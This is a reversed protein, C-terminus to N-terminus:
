PNPFLTQTIAELLQGVPILQTEKSTRQKSELMGGILNKEGVTVRVPCGILDADNFKVGAREDRDDFLVSFGAKGLTQYIEDAKARTDMKKGTLHMLYVDFPAASPPLTLGKEDHHAEALASLVAKFQIDDQTELVDANISVLSEGCNSCADGEGALTLDTILEAQYDRGHNTNLLHYGTENAGAILNTALPILDDAVILVNKLGIPSAYGAVAGPKHIEEPTALRVDGVAQTLKAESLTMDGRLVVFVFKGDAVRTFMMAKATKDKPIGLFAALSDITNSDPTFVKELSRPEEPLPVPKRFEALELRATYGCSPCHIIKTSGTSIPFFSFFLGRSFLAQHNGPPTKLVSLRRNASRYCIV